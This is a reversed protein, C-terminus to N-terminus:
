WSVEEGANSIQVEFSNPALDQENGAGSLTYQPNISITSVSDYAYPSVLTHITYGNAM